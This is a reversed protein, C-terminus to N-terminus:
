CAQGTICFVSVKATEPEPLSVANGMLDSANTSESEAPLESVPSLRSNRKLYNIAEKSTARPISDTTTAIGINFAPPGAPYQYWTQSFSDYNSEGGKELSFSSNNTSGTQRHYPGVEADMALLYPLRARRKKLYCRCSWGGIALCIFALITLGVILGSRNYQGTDETQDPGSFAAPANPIGNDSSGKWPPADRTSGTPAPMQTSAPGMSASLSTPATSTASPALQDSIPAPAALVGTVTPFSGDSNRRLTELHVITRTVPTPSLSSM